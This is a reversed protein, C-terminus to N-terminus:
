LNLAFIRLCFLNGPLYLNEAHQSMPSIKLLEISLLWLWTIWCLSPQSLTASFAPLVSCRQPHGLSVRGLGFGLGESLPRSSSTAWLRCPCVVTWCIASNLEDFTFKLDVNVTLLLLLSPLFFMNILLVTSDIAQFKALRYKYILFAQFTTFFSERVTCVASQVSTKM